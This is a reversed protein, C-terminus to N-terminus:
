RERRDASKAGVAMMVLGTLFVVVPILDRWKFKSLQYLQLQTETLEPHDYKYVIAPYALMALWILGALMIVVGVLAIVDGRKM